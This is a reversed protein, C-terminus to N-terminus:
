TARRPVRHGTRHEGAQAHWAEPCGLLGAAPLQQDTLVSRAPVSPWTRSSRSPNSPASPSVSSTRRDVGRAPPPRTPTRATTAGTDSSRSRRDHQGTRHVLRRGLPHPAQRSSSHRLGTAPCATAPHVRDAIQRNSPQDSVTPSGSATTAARGVRVRGAGYLGPRRCPSRVPAGTRNSRQAPQTVPGAASM